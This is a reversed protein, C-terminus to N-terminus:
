FILLVNLFGIMLWGPPVQLATAVGGAPMSILPSSFPPSSTTPAKTTFQTVTSNTYIVSTRVETVNGSSQTSATSTSCNSTFITVTVDSESSWWSNFTGSPTVSMELTKTMTTTISTSTSTSAAEVINLSTADVLSTSEGPRATSVDTAVIIRSSSEDPQYAELNPNNMVNPLGQSRAPVVFSLVKAVLFFFRPPALSRGSGEWMTPIPTSRTSTKTVGSTTANIPASSSTTTQQSSLSSWSPSSWGSPGPVNSTAFPTSSNGADYPPSPVLFGSTLPLPTVTITIVSMPTTTSYVTVASDCSTTTANQYITVVTELVAFM